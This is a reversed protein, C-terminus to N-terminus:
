AFSDSFDVLTLTMMSGPIGCILQRVDTSELGMITMGDVEVMKNKQCSENM